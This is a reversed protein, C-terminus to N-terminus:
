TTFFSYVSYVVDNHIHKSKMPRHARIINHSLRITPLEILQLSKHLQKLMKDPISSWHITPSSSNISQM